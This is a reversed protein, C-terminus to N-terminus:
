VECFVNQPQLCLLSRLKGNAFQCPNSLDHAGVSWLQWPTRVTAMPEVGAAPRAPGEQSSSRFFLPSRLWTMPCGAKTSQSCFQKALASVEAKGDNMEAVM